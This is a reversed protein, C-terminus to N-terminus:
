GRGQAREHASLKLLAVLWERKRLSDLGVAMGFSGRRSLSRMSRLLAAHSGERRATAPLPQQRGNPIVSSHHHQAAEFPGLRPRDPLSDAWSDTRPLPARGEGGDRRGRVPGHPYLPGM